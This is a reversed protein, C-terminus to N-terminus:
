PLTIESEETEEETLDEEEVEFTHEIIMKNFIFIPDSEALLFSPIKTIDTDLGVCIHREKDFMSLFKEKASM